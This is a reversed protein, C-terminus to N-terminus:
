RRGIIQAARRFLDEKTKPSDDPIANATSFGSSPQITPIEGNRDAVTRARESDLMRMADPNAKIMSVLEETSPKAQANLGRAILGGLMYRRKAPMGDFERTANLIQEIQADRDRFDSFREDGWVEDKAAREESLRANRRQEELLPELQGAYQRAVSDSIRQVIANQWDQMKQSRTADDDYQMENFDLVPIEVNPQSTAMDTANQAAQSQDQVTAQARQLLAMLQANQQEAAELRASLYQTMSQVQARAQPQATGAFGQLPDPAATQATPEAQVEQAPQADQAPQGAGESRQEQMIREGEIGGPIMGGNNEAEIEATNMQGTREFGQAIADRLSVPVKEEENM